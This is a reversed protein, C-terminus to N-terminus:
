VILSFHAAGRIYRGGEPSQQADLQKQRRAELVPNEYQTKRNIHSLCLCVCDTLIMVSLCIWSRNVGIFAQVILRVGKEIRFWVICSATQFTALIWHTKNSFLEKQLQKGFYACPGFLDLQYVSYLGPMVNVCM